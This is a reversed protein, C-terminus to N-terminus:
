RDTRPQKLLSLCIAAASVQFKLAVFLQFNSKWESMNKLAELLLGYLAATQELTVDNKSHQAVCTCM